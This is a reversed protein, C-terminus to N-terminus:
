RRPRQRATRALTERVAPPVESLADEPRARMPRERPTSPFAETPMPEHEVDGRPTEREPATRQYDHEILAEAIEFPYKGIKRWAVLKNRSLDKCHTGFFNVAVKKDGGADLEEIKNAILEKLLSM